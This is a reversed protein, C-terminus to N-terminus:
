LGGLTVSTELSSTWKEYGDEELEIALEAEGSEVIRGNIFIHVKDPKLEELLRSYHTIVLVGLDDEKTAREIRSSVVRLGDIDLGSDLEDLIAIRSRLSILQLTEMRKKEGGSMDLNIGRSLDNGELGLNRSEEEVSEQFDEPALSSENMVDLLTVGDIEVPYQMALFLGLQAREWTGLETLDIEDLTITGQTIEYGARGMLIHALTSKGSGNPGMLAHVEGSRVTLNVGQLIETEETRAHLDKIILESM